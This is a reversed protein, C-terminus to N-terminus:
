QAPPLFDVPPGRLPDPPPDYFIAFGTAGLGVAGAAWVWRKQYWRRPRLKRVLEQFFLPDGEPVVYDRDIEQVLIRTYKETSDPMDSAYFALSILRHAVPGYVYRSGINRNFIELCPRVKQIVDEFLGLRYHRDAINLSDVCQERTQAYAQENPYVWFMSIILVIYRYASFSM